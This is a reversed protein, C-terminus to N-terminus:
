ASSVEIAHSTTPLTGPRDQSLRALRTLRLGLQEIEHRCDFPTTSAAAAVDISRIGRVRRWTLQGLGGLWGGIQLACALAVEAHSIKCKELISPRAM